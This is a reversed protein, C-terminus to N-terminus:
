NDVPKKPAEDLTIYEDTNKNYDPWHREKFVTDNKKKEWEMHTVKDDGDQDFLRIFDMGTEGGEVYPEMPVYEKRPAAAMKKDFEVM